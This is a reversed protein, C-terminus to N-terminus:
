RDNFSSKADIDVGHGRLLERHFPQHYTQTASNKGLPNSLWVANRNNYEQKALNVSPIAGSISKSYAEFYDLVATRDIIWELMNQDDQDTENCNEDIVLWDNLSPLLEDVLKELDNQRYKHVQEVTLPFSDDNPNHCLLWLCSAWMLKRGSYARIERFSSVTEALIGNEELITAVAEAHRGYVYTPPSVLPDTNVQIKRLQNSNSSDGLKPENIGNDKWQDKYLVSFHPVLITCERFREDIPLGANGVLVLDKRRSTPTSEYIPAYADSPTAVYIPSGAPTQSGPIKGRPCAVASFEDYGHNDRFFHRDLWFTGMRGSAGVVEATFECSSMKPVIPHSATKLNSIRPPQFPQFAMLLPLFCLSVAVQPLVSIM